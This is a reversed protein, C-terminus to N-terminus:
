IIELEISNETKSIVRVVIDKDILLERQDGYASLEEIYAARTGKKAYITIKFPYNLMGKKTVSTSTFQTIKFISGVYKDTYIPVEVSRYCIVDDELISKKIANSLEEAILRLKADEPADGRLMLNLRRFLENGKKDPENYAYKKVLDIERESLSSIWKKSKARLIPVVKNPPVARFNGLPTRNAIYEALSEKGTKFNVLRAFRIREQNSEDILQKIHARNEKANLAYDKGLGKIKTIRGDRNGDPRKIDIAKNSDDYWKKTHVNQRKGSNDPRYEVVCGCNRHRRFVDNGTNRVKEYDYIGALNNCWECCKGDTTRVIKPLLGANYHLDANAKVSDDVASMCFNTIADGLLWSVNDFSKNEM